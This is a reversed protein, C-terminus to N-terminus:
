YGFDQTWWPGGTGFYAGVGLTKFDCNLINARHGPSNMWSTMVAAATAQGMAINEARMTTVGAVRARDFPSLGDPSDHSFYGRDRMDASHVRALTALAGDARLAPCGAAARQQNVLTLVQGEDGPAAPAAAGAAV